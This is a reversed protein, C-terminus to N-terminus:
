PKRRSFRTCADRTEPHSVAWCHQLHACGPCRPDVHDLSVGQNILAAAQEQAFAALSDWAKIRSNQTRAWEHMLKKIDTM